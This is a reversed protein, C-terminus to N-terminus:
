VGGQRADFAARWTDYGNQWGDPVPQEGALEVVSLGVAQAAFPMHGLVKTFGKPAHPNRVQLGAVRVHVVIGLDPLTEVLIVRVRSREEGPRTRYTWLQGAAFPPRPASM